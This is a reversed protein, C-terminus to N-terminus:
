FLTNRVSHRSLRNPSAGWCGLRLIQVGAPLGLSGPRTRGALSLPHTEEDERRAWGGMTWGYGDMQGGAGWGGSDKVSQDVDGAVRGHNLPLWREVALLVPEGVSWRQWRSSRQPTCVPPRESAIHYDGHYIPACAPFPAAPDQFCCTSRLSSTLRHITFSRAPPPAPLLSIVCAARAPSSNRLVSHFILLMLRVLPPCLLVRPPPPPRPSIAWASGKFALALLHPLAHGELFRFNRGPM